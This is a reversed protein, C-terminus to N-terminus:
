IVEIVPPPTPPVPPTYWNLLYIILQSRGKLGLKKYVNTLHFKVTKISLGMTTAIDQNSMGGTMLWTIVAIESYTLGKTSLFDNM